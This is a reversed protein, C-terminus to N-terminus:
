TPSLVSENPECSSVCTTNAVLWGVWVFSSSYILNIYISRGEYLIDAVGLIFM